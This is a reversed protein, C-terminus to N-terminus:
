DMGVLARAARRKFYTRTTVGNDRLDFPLMLDLLIHDDNGTYLAIRDLAGAAAVGRLVDLRATATSRRSRSPSSM